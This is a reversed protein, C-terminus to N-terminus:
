LDTSKLGLLGGRLSSFLENNSVSSFMYSDIAGSNWIEKGNIDIAASYFPDMVGYITIGNLASSKLTIIDVPNVDLSAFAYSPNGTSFAFENIWSELVNNQNHKVRWYYNSDWEINNKNIYYLESITTDIILSSYDSTTSLQFQYTTVDLIEEWQFMVHIYNLKSDNIPHILDAFLNSLFVIIILLTNNM